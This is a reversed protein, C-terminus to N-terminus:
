FTSHSRYIRKSIAELASILKDDGTNVKGKGKKGDTDRLSVSACYMIPM